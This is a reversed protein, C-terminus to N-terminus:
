SGFIAWPQELTPMPSDYKWDTSQFYASEGGDIEKLTGMRLPDSFDELKVDAYMMHHTEAESIVSEPSTNTSSSSVLDPTGAKAPDDPDFSSFDFFQGFDDMSIVQAPPPSNRMGSSEGLGLLDAQGPIPSCGKLISDLTDHLDPNPEGGSAMQILQSMQEYFATAEVETKVNEVEEVKKLLAEDPPGDWETKIRKPPSAEHAVSSTSAASTQGAGTSSSIDEERPRKMSGAPSPVTAPPTPKDVPVPAPAAKSARRQPQKQQKPKPPAKTKPSKPAQPSSISHTPTPASAVPTSVSPPPTPTSVAPGATGTASKKLSPQRTHTPSRTPPHTPPPSLHQAVQPPSSQHPPSPQHPPLSVRGPVPSPGLQNNVARPQQALIASFMDSAQNLQALMAKMMDLTIVFRPTNSSMLNRQHQVTVIKIPITLLSSPDHHQRSVITILKNILVFDKVHVCFMALKEDLAIAGRHLTEIVTNYELRQEAPIDVPRM